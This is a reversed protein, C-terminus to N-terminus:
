WRRDGSVCRSDGWRGRGRCWLSCRGRGRGQPARRRSLLSPSSPEAAIENRRHPAPLRPSTSPTTLSPPPQLVGPTVTV